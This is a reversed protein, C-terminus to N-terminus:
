PAVPPIFFTILFPFRFTSHPIYSLHLSLCSSSFLMPSLHFVPPIPFPLYLLLVVPPTFLYPAFTSHIRVPLLMHLAVPPIFLHLAFAPHILLPLLLHLAVPPIFFTLLLPKSALHFSNPSSLIPPSVFPPCLHTILSWWKVRVVVVVVQTIVLYHGSLHGGGRVLLM